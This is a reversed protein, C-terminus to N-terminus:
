CPLYTLTSAIAFPDDSPNEPLEVRLPLSSRSLAGRGIILRTGGCLKLASSDTKPEISKDLSARSRM